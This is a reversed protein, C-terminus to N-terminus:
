TLDILIGPKRRILYFITTLDTDTGVAAMMFPSLGTVPDFEHIAGEPCSIALMLCGSLKICQALATHLLLRGKANRDFVADPYSRVFENFHHPANKLVKHLIPREDEQPICERVVALTDKLGMVEVTAPYSTTSM